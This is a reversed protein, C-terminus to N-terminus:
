PANVSPQFAITRSNPYYLTRRRESLLLSHGRNTLGNSAESYLRYPLERYRLYTRQRNLIRARIYPRIFNTRLQAMNYNFVIKQIAPPDAGTPNPMIVISVSKYLSLNVVDRNCFLWISAFSFFYFRVVVKISRFFFFTINFQTWIEAIYVCFLKCLTQVKM